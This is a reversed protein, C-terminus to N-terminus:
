FSLMLKLMVHDVGLRLYQVHLQFWMAVVTNILVIHSTLNQTM